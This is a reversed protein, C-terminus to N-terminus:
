LTEMFEIFCRVQNTDKLDLEVEMENQNEITIKYDYLCITIFGKEFERMWYGMDTTRHQIEVFGMRKLYDPHKKVIDKIKM